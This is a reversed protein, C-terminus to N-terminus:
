LCPDLISENISLGWTVLGISLFLKLPGLFPVKLWGMAQNANALYDAQYDEAM